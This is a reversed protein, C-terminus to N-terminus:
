RSYGCGLTLSKMRLSKRRLSVKSATALFIPMSTCTEYSERAWRYCVGREWNRELLKSLIWGCSLFWLGGLLGTTM